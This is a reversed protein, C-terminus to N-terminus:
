VFGSVALFQFWNEFFDTLWRERKLCRRVPADARCPTLQALVGTKIAVVDRHCDARSVSCIARLRASGM